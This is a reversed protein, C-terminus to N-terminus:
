TPLLAPAANALPRRLVHQSRQRPSPASPSGSPVRAVAHPDIKMRFGSGLEARGSQPILFPTVPQARFEDGRDVRGALPNTFCRLRKRAPRASFLRRCNDTLCTHFPKWVNDCELLVFTM